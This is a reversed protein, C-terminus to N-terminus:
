CLLFFHIDIATREDVDGQSFPKQVFHFLAEFCLGFFLLCRALLIDVDAFQVFQGLVLQLIFHLLDFEVKLDALVAEDYLFDISTQFFFYEEGEGEV